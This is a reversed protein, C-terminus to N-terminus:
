AAPAPQLREPAVAREVLAIRQAHLGPLLARDELLRLGAAEFRDHMAGPPVMALPRFPQGRLTVRLRRQLRHLTGAAYYSVVLHRSSVQALGELLRQQDAEERLHQLLRFCLVLDFSDAALPLPRTLDAELLTLPAGPADEEAALTSRMRRRNLDLGVVQQRAVQRLLPTLRGHGCPADLAREVPGVRALMEAVIRVERLHVWRQDRGYRDRLYSARDLHPM